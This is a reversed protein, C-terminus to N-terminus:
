CNNNIWKYCFARPLYVFVFLFIDSLSFAIEEIVCQLYQTDGGNHRFIEM